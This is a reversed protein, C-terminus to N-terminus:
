TPLSPLIGNKVLTRYVEDMVVTAAGGFLSVALVLGVWLGMFRPRNSDDKGSPASPPQASATDSM